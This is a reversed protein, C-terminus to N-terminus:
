HEIEIVEVDNNIFIIKYIGLEEAYELAQSRSSSNSYEIRTKDGSLLEKSYKLAKLEFGDDAHILCDPVPRENMDVNNHPSRLIEDLSIGFGIAPADEGFLKLLGDYRGGRLVIAGTDPIYGRLIIGNYYDNRQVMGLDVIIKDGLGASVLEHYITHLYGLHADIETDKCLRQAEEFVEDGGFLRPLRRMIETYQNSEFDKLKDSLAAYNKGEILERVEERSEKDEKPIPLKEVLTHFFDAYGLELRFDPVIASLAELATFILELDARKGGAGIVEVGSEMSSHNQGRKNKAMRYIKQNYYLRIPKKAKQLRTSILRAIPLTNDPRIALLRGHKDTLKYMSEEPIGFDGSKFVEYYEVVPTQVESYGMQNYLAILRGSLERLKACQAFLLDGTGVPTLKHYKRM